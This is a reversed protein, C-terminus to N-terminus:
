VPWAANYSVEGRQRDVETTKAQVEASSKSLAEKLFGNERRCRLYGSLSYCAAVLWWIFKSLEVMRRCKNTELGDFRFHYIFAWSQFYCAKTTTSAVVSRLHTSRCRSRPRSREHPLVTGIARHNHLIDHTMPKAKGPITCDRSEPVSKSYIGAATRIGAATPM